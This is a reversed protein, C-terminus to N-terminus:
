YEECDYINGAEKIDYCEPAECGTADLTHFVKRGDLIRLVKAGGNDVYGPPM